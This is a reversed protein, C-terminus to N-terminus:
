FHSELTTLHLSPLTSTDLPKRIIPRCQSVSTFLECSIQALLNTSRTARDGELLYTSGSQQDMELAVRCTLSAELWWTVGKHSTM